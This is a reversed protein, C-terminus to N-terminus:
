QWRDRWDLEITVASSSGQWRLENAGPAIAFFDGVISALVNAGNDKATLNEHDLILVDGTHLAASYQIYENNTVNVVRCGANIDTAATITVTPYTPANGGGTVAFTSSTASPSVSQETLTDSIYYPTAAIFGAQWRMATLLNPEYQRQWSDLQADIHRDDWLRLEAIPSAASPYRFAAVMADELTRLSTASAATLVGNVTIRKAEPRAESALVGDRRPVAVTEVRQTVSESWGSANFSYSGFQCGFTPM